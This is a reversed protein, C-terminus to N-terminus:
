RGGDASKAATSGQSVPAVQAAVADAKSPSLWGRLVITWVGAANLLTFIAVWGITQRRSAPLREVREALPDLVAALAQRVREGAPAAVVVEPEAAPAAAADSTAAPDPAAEAEPPAMVAVSVPEAPAPEAPAPEPAAATAPEASAAPAPAPEPSPEVPPLPADAEQLLRATAEAAAQALSADLDDISQPPNATGEALGDPTALDTQVAGLVMNPGDPAAMLSRADDIAADVARGLVPDEAGPAKAGATHQAPESPKSM